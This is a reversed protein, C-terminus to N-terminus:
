ESLFWFFQPFSLQVWYDMAQILRGCLTKVHECSRKVIVHKCHNAQKKNCNYLELMVDYCNKVGSKM